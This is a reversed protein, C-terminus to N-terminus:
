GNCQICGINKITVFHIHIQGRIFFIGFNVGTSAPSSSVDPETGFCRVGKTLSQKGHRVLGRYVQFSVFTCLLLFIRCIYGGGTPWM